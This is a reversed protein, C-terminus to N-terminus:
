VEPALKSSNVGCCCRIKNCTVSGGDSTDSDPRFGSGKNAEVTLSFCTWYLCVGRRFGSLHSPPERRPSNQWCLCNMLSGCTQSMGWIWLKMKLTEIMMTSFTQSFRLLKTSHSMNKKKRQLHYDGKGGPIQLGLLRQGRVWLLVGYLCLQDELVWRKFVFLLQHLLEAFYFTATTLMNIQRWTLPNNKHQNM